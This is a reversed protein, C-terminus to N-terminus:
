PAIWQGVFNESRRFIARAHFPNGLKLTEIEDVILTLCLFRAYDPSLIRSNPADIPEGPTSGGYGNKPRDPLADWIERPGQAAEVKGRLRIQVQDAADWILATARPQERLEAVKRTAADTFFTLTGADHDAGRLVLMRAEGGGSTGVTALAVFRAPAAPDGVGAVVRTWADKLTDQLGPQTENM